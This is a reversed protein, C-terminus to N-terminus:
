PLDLENEVVASLRDHHVIKVESKSNKIKFNVGNPLKEVVKWPGSRRPALKRNEGTKYFKVKLWVKQGPVYDNFRLNTNYQKQMNRKSIELKSIVQDYVDQLLSTLENAYDKASSIDGSDPNGHQFSIDQPLLASRGFVVNYPICGSAKSKSTNLAFVLGPLLSRWKTHAMNRHLFAARLMDKISRIHREAFGNGQSHCASLRRKEIGLSNCVESMILGDVNSGQDTLLYYPVGHTYIWESQFAEAITTATQDKLPM